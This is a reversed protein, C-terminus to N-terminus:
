FRKGVIEGSPAFSAKACGPAKGDGLGRFGAPVTMVWRRGVGCQHDGVAFYSPFFCSLSEFTPTKCSGDAVLGVADDLSSDFFDVSSQVFHPFIISM